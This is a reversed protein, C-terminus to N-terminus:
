HLGAMYESVAKIEAESMHFAIRTMAEDDNSRRGAKFAVLQKVAYAPHQGSVQPFRPPIGRGNPGHCSMCASVGMKANGGRYLREGQKALKENSASGSQPKLGAYYAGLNQMDQQSLGAALASMTPDKRAGSKFDALQKAIYGASQGALNPWLPNVSNGAAGHCALCMGAKEKGAAANGVAQAPGTLILVALMLITASTVAKIM